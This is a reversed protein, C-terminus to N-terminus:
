NAKELQDAILLVLKDANISYKSILSNYDLENQNYLDIVQLHHRICVDKIAQAYQELSYGASNKTPYIVGYQSKGIKLPTIFVIKAKPNLTTVKNIVKETNGYFTNVTENEGSKGLVTNGSFDYMGAFVTVLDIDKLNEATLNDAMAAMVAGPQGDTVVSKFRCLDGVRSQYLNNSTISDGICYWKKDKYKHNLAALRENELDAAKMKQNNLKANAENAKQMDADRKTGHWYLAINAGILLALLLFCLLRKRRSEKLEAREELGIM